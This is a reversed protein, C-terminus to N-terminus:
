VCLRAYVCGGVRVCTRAPHRRLLLGRDGLQHLDLTFGDRQPDPIPRVIHAHDLHPADIASHRQIHSTPHPTKHTIYSVQVELQLLHLARPLPAAPCLSLRPCHPLHHHPWGRLGGQWCKLWWWRRGAAGGGVRGQAGGRQDARSHPARLRCMRVRVAGHAGEGTVIARLGRVYPAADAPPLPARSDHDAVVGKRLELSHPRVELQLVNLM